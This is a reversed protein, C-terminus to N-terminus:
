PDVPPVSVVLVEEIRTLDVAPVVSITQFMGFGGRSVSAVTGLPLGKPFVGGLGSSIVVDGPEVEEPLAVYELSLGEGTGRAVGRTRTREVLTAVASSADTVLLVRSSHPGSRVVRGVLGQDNVVTMGEAIGETRGKDILVTSFWNTADVGIVRAAVGPTPQRDSFELLRKLRENELRYEEQRVLEARLRLNEALLDSGSRLPPVLMGALAFAGTGSWAAASQLPRTAALAASEIPATRRHHRLQVSLFLLAWVLLTGVLIRARHKRLFEFM